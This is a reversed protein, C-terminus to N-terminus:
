DDVSVEYKLLAEYVKPDIQNKYLEAVEKIYGEKAEKYAYFADEPTAFCGLHIVEKFKSIQAIYRNIRPKYSVGVPYLGKDKRRHTLLTNLDKPVFCCTEPSYFKNGKVLIDKDLQFGEQNFGKQLKCWEVFKSLYKFDGIVECDKYSVYIEHYKSNYCRSFMGNWIGYLRLDVRSPVDTFGVGYLNPAERDCVAGSRINNMSVYKTNGTRVFRVLVKRSNTYELIEINGFNNTPFVKGEYEEKCSYKKQKTM